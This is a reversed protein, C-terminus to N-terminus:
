RGEGLLRDNRERIRACATARREARDASEQDAVFRGRVFRMLERFAAIDEETPEVSWTGRVPEGDVDIVYCRASM